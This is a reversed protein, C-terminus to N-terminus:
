FLQAMDNESWRGVNAAGMRGFGKFYRLHRNPNITSGLFKARSDCMVVTHVVKVNEYATADKTRGSRGDDDVSGRGRKFEATWKKWQTILLLSRGLTEMYDEHITKPPMGKKCFYKIVSKIELIEMKCIHRVRRESFQKVFAVLCSQINKM